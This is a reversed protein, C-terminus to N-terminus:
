RVYRLIQRQRKHRPEAASSGASAEVAPADVFVAVRSVKDLDTTGRRKAASQMAVLKPGDMLSLRDNGYAVDAHRPRLDPTAYRTLGAQDRGSAETLQCLSSGRKATNQSCCPMCANPWFSWIM